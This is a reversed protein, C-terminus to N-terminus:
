KITQQIFNSVEIPPVHATKWRQETFTNSTTNKSIKRAIQLVSSDRSSTEEEGPQFNQDKGQQSIMGGKDKKRDLNERGKRLLWSWRRSVPRIIVVILWNWNRQQDWADGCKRNIVDRWHENHSDKCPFRATGRKDYFYVNNIQLHYITLQQLFQMDQGRWTSFSFLLTQVLFM